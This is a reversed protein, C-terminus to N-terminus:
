GGHLRPVRETRMERCQASCADPVGVLRWIKSNDKARMAVDRLLLAGRM